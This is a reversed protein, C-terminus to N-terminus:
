LQQLAWKFVKHETTGDFVTGIYEGGAWECINDHEPGIAYAEEHGLAMLHQALAYIDLMLRRAVNHSWRHVELHVVPEGATTEEWRLDYDKCM